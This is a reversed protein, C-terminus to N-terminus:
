CIHSGTALRCIDGRDCRPHESRDRSRPRGCRRVGTAVASAIQLPLPQGSNPLIYQQESWAAWLRQSQYDNKM